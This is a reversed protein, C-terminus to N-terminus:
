PNPVETPTNYGSPVSLDRGKRYLVDTVWYFYVGGWTKDHLSSAREIVFPVLTILILRFFKVKM